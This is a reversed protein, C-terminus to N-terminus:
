KLFLQITLNNVLISLLKQNIMTFKDMLYISQYMM